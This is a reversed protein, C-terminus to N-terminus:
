HPQLHIINSHTKSMNSLGGKVINRIPLLAWITVSAGNILFVYAAGCGVFNWGHMWQCYLISNKININRQPHLTKRGLKHKTLDQFRQPIYIYIFIQLFLLAFWNNNESKWRPGPYYVLRDTRSPQHLGLSDEPLPPDSPLDRRHGCPFSPHNWLAWLYIKVLSFGGKFFCVSTNNLFSHTIRIANIQHVYM